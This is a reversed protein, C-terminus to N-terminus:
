SALAESRTRLIAYWLPSLSLCATLDSSCWSGGSDSARVGVRSGWQVAGRGVWADWMWRGRGPRSTSLHRHLVHTGKETGYTM